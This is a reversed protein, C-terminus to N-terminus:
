VPKEFGFHPVKQLAKQFEGINEFGEDGLANMKSENDSFADVKISTFGNEKAYNEAFTLLQNFIDTQMWDPHAVLYYVSLSKDSTNKWKVDAYDEPMDNKLVMFGKSVGKDKALYLEKNDINDSLIQRNPLFSIWHQLNSNIFNQIAKELIFVAEVIDLPKAQVIDM